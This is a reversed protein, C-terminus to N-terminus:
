VHGEAHVPRTQAAVIARGMVAEEINPIQAVYRVDHVHLRLIFVLEDVHKPGHGIIIGSRDGHAVRAPGAGAGFRFGLGLQEFDAFGFHDLMSPVDGDKAQSIHELHRLFGGAFQLGLTNGHGQDVRAPDFRDVRAGEFEKGAAHFHNASQFIVDQMVAETAGDHFMEVRLHDVCRHHADTPRILENLM